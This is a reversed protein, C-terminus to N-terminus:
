VADSWVQFRSWVVLTYVFDAELNAGLTPKRQAQRGFTQQSGKGSASSQKVIPQIPAHIWPRKSASASSPASSRSFSPAHDIPQWWGGPIEVPFTSIQTIGQCSRICGPGAPHNRWALRTKNEHSTVHLSTKKRLVGLQNQRAHATHQYTQRAEKLADRLIQGKGQIHKWPTGYQPHVFDQLM